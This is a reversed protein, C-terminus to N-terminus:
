ARKIFSVPAAWEIARVTMPPANHSLLTIHDGSVEVRKILTPGDPLKVICDKGKAESLSPAHKAYYLVDGNQYAPWMSDGRVEVALYKEKSGPPQEVHRLGDGKVYSDVPFVEAGAGVYGVVPVGERPNIGYLLWEATTHFQRAYKAAVEPRLNRTGNEHAILTQVSLDFRRAAESASAFGAAKRAARLRNAPTKMTRIM